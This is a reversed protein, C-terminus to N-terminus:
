SSGAAQGATMPIVLSFRTTGDDLREMTAMGDHAEAILKVFSLGLGHGGERAGVFPEFIHDEMGADVGPGADDVTLHWSSDEQYGAVRVVSGYPAASIANEVLNRVAHEIGVRSVHLSAPEVEIRLDVAHDSALGVLPVTASAVVDTTSVEEIPLSATASRGFALLDQVLVALKDTEEGISTLARRAETLSTSSLALDAEAKMIALPSQLEHAAQAAFRQQYDLASRLSSTIETLATSIAFLEDKPGTPQPTPLDGAAAGEAARVISRLRRLQEGIALWALAAGLGISLPIVVLEFSLLRDRQLVAWDTPAMALVVVPPSTPAAVAYAPRPGEKWDISLTAGAASIARVREASLLPENEHLLDSSELVTGDLNFFQRLTTERRFVGESRLEAMTVPVPGNAVLRRALREVDLRLVREQAQRSEQTATYTLYAAQGIMLVAIISTFTLCLYFRLSTRRRETM